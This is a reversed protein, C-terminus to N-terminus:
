PKGGAKRELRLTGDADHRVAVGSQKVLFAVFSQPDSSDFTGTVRREGLDPDDVALQIANYRNLQAIVESVSAGDFILQRRTWSTVHTVSRSDLRRVAAGTRVAVQEGANVVTSAPLTADPLVAVRGEVVTVFDGGNSRYVNFETGLAQVIARDVAVRFPRSTQKAVRFLAEGRLLRVTRSQESYLVQVESQTNLTVISGDPLAISRLEGVASTYRPENLLAIRLQAVALAVVGVAAAVALWGLARRTRSRAQGPPAAAAAESEFAVVPSSAKTDLEIDIGDFVDRDRLDIDLSTLELYYRVHIPSEKLWEAFARRDNESSTADQMRELWAAADQLPQPVRERSFTSM